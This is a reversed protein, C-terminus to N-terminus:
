RFYPRESAFLAAKALERCRAPADASSRVLAMVCAQPQLAAPLKWLEGEVTTAAGRLFASDAFKLLQPAFGGQKAALADLAFV